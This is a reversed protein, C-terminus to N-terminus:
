HFLQPHRPAIVVGEGGKKSQSCLHRLYFKYGIAQELSYSILSAMRRAQPHVIIKMARNLLGYVTKEISHLTTRKHGHMTM